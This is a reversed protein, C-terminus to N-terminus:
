LKSVKIGDDTYAFAIIPKNLNAKPFCIGAVIGVVTDLIENGAHFYQIHELETIGIEDVLKLGEM